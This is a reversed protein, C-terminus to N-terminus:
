GRGTCAGLRKMLTLTIYLGRRVEPDSLMKLLQTLTPPEEPAEIPTSTICSAKDQLNDLIELLSPDGSSATKLLVVALADLIGQEEEIWEEIKAVKEEIRALRNEM